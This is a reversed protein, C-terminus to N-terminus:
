ATGGPATGGERTIMDAHAGLLAAVDLPDFSQFLGDWVLATILPAVILHPHAVLAPAVEGRAVGRQAISRMVEVGRSVVTEHYFRAIEPFRPGEAIVLRLIERRRTELVQTRFLTFLRELLARTPLDPAVALAGAAELVPIAAQRILQEFLDQKDRFHLYITGKGIGCAAAIDELRAEAFGRAAFVNLAADLIQARREEAPLMTRSRPAKRSAPM